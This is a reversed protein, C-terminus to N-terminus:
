GAAQLATWIRDPTAPMDIHRVGHASLADVVANIVAPPAGTAGAEGCGKIGLINHATPTEQHAFDFDPLDDARPLRYDMFSGSLLQGDADHVTHEM